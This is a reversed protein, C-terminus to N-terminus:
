FFDELKVIDVSNKGKQCGFTTWFHDLLALEFHTRILACWIYHVKQAGKKHNNIVNWHRAGICVVLLWDYLVSWIYKQQKTIGVFECEGGHCM